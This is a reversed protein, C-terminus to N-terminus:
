CRLFQWLTTNMDTRFRRHVAGLSFVLDLSSQYEAAFLLLFLLALGRGATEL